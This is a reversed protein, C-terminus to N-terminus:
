APPRHWAWALWGSLLVGVLYLLWTQPVGYPYLMLALGLWKATPRSSKKGHWWGVAGAIGFVVLGILYATSPLELGIAQLFQVFDM